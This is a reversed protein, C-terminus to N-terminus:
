GEGIVGRAKATAARGRFTRVIFGERLLHPEYVEAVTKPSEGILDALSRLGM